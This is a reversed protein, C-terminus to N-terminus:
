SLPRAQLHASLTPSALTFAPQRSHTITATQSQREAHCGHWACEYGCGPMMGGCAGTLAKVTDDVKASAVVDQLEEASASLSGLAADLAAGAEAKGATVADKLATAKKEFAAVSADVAAATEASAGKKLAAAQAKLTGVADDVVLGADLKGASVAAKLEGAKAARAPIAALRMLMLLNCAHKSDLGQKWAHTALGACLQM